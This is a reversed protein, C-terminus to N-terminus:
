YHFPWIHTPADVFRVSAVLERQAAVFDEERVTVAVDEPSALHDFFYPTSIDEGRLRSSGKVKEDVLRTKRSIAKLMADSCLAYLDAGTYTFPLKEAVRRLDVDPALNFKRTLAELITVQQDHTSSVGLYLMKDFRGPRLLAPDLLDPRNTAGIVFVGGGNGSSGAGDSDDSAGGGSSMGDLEALLQSVIRDMVGGSDGQNGRKPAVSDLEDFFVVCPRADRARQFVRRVNAESEGIYMNLLEPGKVSFFNLSFETAIAKALLTKGTGPPGYFLIGSRKRMGKAFLEPRSLPLSITEMISSKQDALGGVDDWTVTPIKPAGISDSFTSRAHSVASTFDESLLGKVASGGSLIIDSLSVNQDEALRELRKSRALSARNVVDVLDGAVLAATKLAVSGLDVSPDLYLSQELCSNKLIIERESENPATIELEHTFLSRVGDPVKDIETTTAIVVRAERVIDQLAPVMRDATLVEIHQILLATSRPGCSFAREARSSLVGETKVDGGGSTSSGEAIVEHASVPFTQVGVLSCAATATYSKGVQRQTSHLLVVLPPLGLSIARPSVAASILGALRRVLPLVLPTPVDQVAASSVATSLHQRPLRKLGFWYQWTRQALNPIPQVSSGVQSMRTLSSVDVVVVGAWTDDPDQASGDIAELGTHDICFWAVGIKRLKGGSSMSIENPLEDELSINETNKAPSFTARGVDEDIPIAVLDGRKVLRRKQEFHKQLGTYQLQDLDRTTALPTLIRRLTVERAFPPSPRVNQKQLGNLSANNPADLLPSIKVFPAEGLGSLLIPPVLATPHVSSPLSKSFSSRRNSSKDVAYRPSKAALGALGFIKVPRWIPVEEQPNNFGGLNLSAFGHLPPKKVAELRAWDGSFCGIKALASIGVFVFSDEDEESNPRPHLAEAPVKQLLAETTFLKASRSSARTTASTWSSYVSGPTQAGMRHGGPRPTAATMASLTGSSQPPLGPASLSIMDDLSDDSGDDSHGQSEETESDDRNSVEDGESVSENQRDEAASFFQDNSTDEDDDEIVEKMIQRSPRLRKLAKEQSSGIQILVIKTSSALLGQSVPECAAVIAPPPSVHTIPHAPLPLAFIDGSHVIDLKSLGERTIATLRDETAALSDIPLEKKWSSVHNRINSRGKPPNHFGGGFKNQVEDVDHLINKEVTVFIASLCVPRVSLARVEIPKHLISAHRDPNLAEFTKLFSQFGSAALPVRLTLPSTTEAQAEEPFRRRAPLITWPFDEVATILPSVPSIAIYSNSPPKTSQLEDDEAFDPADTVPLVM